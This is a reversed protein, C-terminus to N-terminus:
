KLKAIKRLPLARAATGAGAVVIEMVANLGGWAIIFSIYNDGMMASVDSNGVFCIYILSLVMASHLLTALVASVAAAPVAKIKTSLFSFIITAAVPFIIRPVLCIFLSWMNGFQSLPTFAFASPQAIGITSWWILSCVGMVGGMYLSIKKSGMLALCLPPIHALTAVIGPGLPLSGLPTFCFIVEIATFLAMITLTRINLKKTTSM